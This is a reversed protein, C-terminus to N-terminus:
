ARHVQHQPCREGVQALVSGSWRQLRNKRWWVNATVTTLNDDM